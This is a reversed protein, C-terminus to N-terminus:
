ECIRIIKDPTTFRICGNKCKVRIQNEHISTIRGHLFPEMGEQTFEIKQGVQYLDCYKMEQKIYNMLNDIEKEQFNGKNDKFKHSNKRLYRTLVDKLTIEDM